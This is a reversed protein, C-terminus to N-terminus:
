LEVGEMVALFDVDARLQEYDETPKPEDYDPNNEWVAGNYLYKADAYDAPVDEVNKYVNEILARPMQYAGGKVIPNGNEAYELTSTVCLAVNYKNTLVYM